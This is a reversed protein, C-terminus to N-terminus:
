DRMLHVDHSAMEDKICDALCYLLVNILATSNWHSLSAKTRFDVYYDAM